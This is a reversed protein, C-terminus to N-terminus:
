RHPCKKPSNGFLCCGNMTGKTREKVNITTRKRGRRTWYSDSTFFETVMAVFALCTRIAVFVLWQSFSKVSWQSMLGNSVKAVHLATWQENAPTEMHYIEFGWRCQLTASPDNPRETQRDKQGCWKRQNCLLSFSLRRANKNVPRTFISRSTCSISAIRKTFTLVSIEEGHIMM